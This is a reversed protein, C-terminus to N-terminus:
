QFYVLFVLSVPLTTPRGQFPSSYISLAETSEM